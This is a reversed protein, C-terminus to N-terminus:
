ICSNGAGDLDKAKARCCTQLRFIFGVHHALRCLGLNLYGASDFPKHQVVHTYVREAEVFDDLM